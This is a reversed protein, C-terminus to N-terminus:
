APVRQIERRESHLMRLLEERSPGPPIVAEHTSAVQMIRDVVGPRAMIEQPLAQVPRIELWARFLDADYMMAVALADAIRAQADAPQPEPRGELFANFLAIRRRDLEVTNRYWPTVRKETMSDHVLALVPPNDLHQGVVDVTGVAHMLGMPIGRGGSPNTCAWSDGVSVIGTAIPVGDVVFRRYRNIVGAMPLVGTIPQAM